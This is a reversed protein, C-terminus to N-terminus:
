KNRRILLVSGSRKFTRGALDTIEAVYTYTGEQMPNGRFNGDWGQDLSSSSFMLEGWRNFIKMEFTTIYRGFVKFIDNMNDGNPTFATPSYLNPNKIITIRNSVSQPIGADVATAKVVYVYIQNSLDEDNDTLSIASGLPFTQLLQGQANYKEVTYSSVGNNWGSYPTWFLNITNDGQVSGVLRMPCAEFSLASTINCVDKYSIQYCVGVESSYEPDVIQTTPTSAMLTYLGSNVSKFVSYDQPTFGPDQQWQIDVQAQNVSATISSVAVPVDTSIATVCKKLSISRAGNTHNTTLQYCYETGCVVAGDAYPSGSATFTLTTSATTRTFSYNAFVASTGTAWTLNNVKNQAIVDLNASCIVPSYTTINNCPDFAGLRFCYYNDDPKINDITDSIVNYYTKFQQFNGSNVAIELKYLINQQANFDLKIQSTNLVELRTITPAPLAAMATVPKTMPNCNDSASLNRGRVTINKSGSSAYTHRDTALSGAPKVVDPSGDNYNIVYQNYNTDTVRVSVENGGCTYIEFQPQINPLVTIQLSDIPSTGILVRMWYTGPTNYTHPSNLAVFQNNGLLDVDCAGCSFPPRITINVVFPACGTKQDVEFKGQKSVYPQAVSVTLSLFILAHVIIITRFIM